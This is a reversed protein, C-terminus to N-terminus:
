TVLEPESIRSLANQSESIKADNTSLPWAHTYLVCTTNYAPHLKGNDNQSM